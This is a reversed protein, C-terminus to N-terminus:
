KLVRKSTSNLFDNAAQVALRAYELAEQAETLKAVYLECQAKDAHALFGDKSGELMCEVQDICQKQLEISAAITKNSQRIVDAALEGCEEKQNSLSVKKEKKKIVVSQASATSCAFLILILSIKQM